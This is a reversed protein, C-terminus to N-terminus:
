RLAQWKTNPMFDMKFVEFKVSEELQEQLHEQCVSSKWGQYTILNHDCEVLEEAPKVKYKRKATRKSGAYGQVQCNSTNVLSVGEDKAPAGVQIFRVGVSDNTWVEDEVEEVQNDQLDINVRIFGVKAHRSDHGWLKLAAAYTLKM